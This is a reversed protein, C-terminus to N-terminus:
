SSTFDEHGMVCITVLSGANYVEFFVWSMDRCVKKFIFFEVLIAVLLQSKQNFCGDLEAVTIYTETQNKDEVSSLIASFALHILRKNSPLSFETRKSKWLFATPLNNQLLDPLRKSGSDPVESFMVLHLGSIKNEQILLIYQSYIWFSMEKRTHLIYKGDNYHLTELLLVGFDDVLSEEAHQVQYKTNQLYAYFHKIAKPINQSSNAM